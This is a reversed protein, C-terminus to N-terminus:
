CSVQPIHTYFKAWTAPKADRDVLTRAYIASWEPIEEPSPLRSYQWGYRGFCRGAMDRLRELRSNNLDSSALHVSVHKVIERPKLLAFKADPWITINELNSWKEGSEIPIIPIVNLESLKLGAAKVAADLKRANGGTWGILDFVSRGSIDLQERVVALAGSVCAEAVADMLHSNLPLDLDTNRRDIDAFFPADIHGLLPSGAESGMPLFNYLQGDLVAATSLGVAVSVCPQGKWEIWRKLAPARDISDRVTAIVREKEVEQRVLLFRRQEGVDVESIEPSGPGGSERLVKRRRTLRRGGARKGEIEVDIRVEAIRDLFLLLPHELNAIEEVQKRVLNVASSSRLPAVIVTAYGMYAYRAIESPIDDLPRPVLYRPITNSIRDAEDERVAEDRLESLIIDRIENQRAFRFCFGDFSKSSQKRSRSYIQVDETIAEISRFGLGKNGIGEGIEKGSTALNIIASVDRDRFGRGRNAVYLRGETESTVALKIAIGGDEGASHADHANQILEFLVRDGYETGIVEGLNKLSEYVQQGKRHADLANSLANRAQTRLAEAPTLSTLETAFNM